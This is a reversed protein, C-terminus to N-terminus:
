SAPVGNQSEGQNLAVGPMGSAIFAIVRRTAAPAVSCPVMVSFMGPPVRVNSKEM